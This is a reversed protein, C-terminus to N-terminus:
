PAALFEAGFLDGLAGAELRNRRHSVSKEALDFRRDDKLGARRREGVAEVCDLRDDGLPRRPIISLCYAPSKLARGNGPAMCVTGISLLKRLSRNWDIASRPRCNSPRLPVRRGAPSI